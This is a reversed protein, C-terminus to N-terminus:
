PQTSSDELLIHGSRSKFGRLHNRGASIIQFVAPRPGADTDGSLSYSTVRVSKMEWHLLKGDQTKLELDLLNGTQYAQTLADQLEGPMVEIVLSKPNANDVQKPDWGRVM